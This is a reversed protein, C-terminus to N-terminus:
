CVGGEVGRGDEERSRTVGEVNGGAAVLDLVFLGNAGVSSSERVMLPSLGRLDVRTYELSPFDERSLCPTRSAAPFFPLFRNEYVLIYYEIPLYHGDKGERGDRRKEVADIGSGSDNDDM